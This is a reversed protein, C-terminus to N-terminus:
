FKPIKGTYKLIFERMITSLKTLIPNNYVLIKSIKHLNQLNINIPRIQDHKTQIKCPIVPMGLFPRYNSIRLLSNIEKM